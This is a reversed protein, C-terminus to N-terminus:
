PLHRAQLRLEFRPPALELLEGGHEDLGLHGHRLLAALHKLALVLRTTLLSYHTTLLSYHATLLSCHTTLLSYHTTLLLYHTTPLSYHTTPLLKYTTSTNVSIGGFDTLHTCDCHLYGDPGSPPAVKECGQESWAQEDVDWYRCRM